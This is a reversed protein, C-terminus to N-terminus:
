FISEILALTIRRYESPDPREGTFGSGEAYKLLIAGM